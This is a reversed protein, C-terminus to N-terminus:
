RGHRSSLLRLYSAVTPLLRMKSQGHGRPEFQIPIELVSLGARQALVLIEPLFAFDDNRFRLSRLHEARYVRYGSTKDHVRLGYLVSMLRNVTTSLFRKWLPLGSVLSREVYRSGIVIDAGTSELPRLLSELEEPRHNLDADLTVVYGPEPPVEAFGRRFAVGLGSPDGEEVLAVIPLGERGMDRVMSASGDAGALVLVIGPEMSRPEAAQILSASLRPLLKQLNERENFAAIM